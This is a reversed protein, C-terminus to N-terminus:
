CLSGFCIPGVIQHTLLEVPDSALRLRAAGFGFVADISEVFQLFLSLITSFIFRDAKCCFTRIYAVFNEFCFMNRLVKTINGDCVIEIVNKRSVFLHSDHTVVAGTFTSKHLHNKPQFLGITSTEVDAFSNIKSVVTLFTQLKVFLHLHDIHHLINGFHDIQTIAVSQGCRLKQLM